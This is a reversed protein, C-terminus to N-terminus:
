PAKCGTISRDQDNIRCLAYFRLCQCIYIQCQVMIQIDHRNDVLDIKWACLRLTHDFLNFIHDSNFRLICWQDRCLCPKIYILDQFLDHCLDRRRCSIRICRKLCQNEIGEIIRIFANDYEATDFFSTDRFSHRNMHHRCTCSSINHLNSIKTGSLKDRTIFKRCSHNSIKRGAQFIYLVGTHTIGYCTRFIWTSLRKRSIFLDIRHHVASHIRCVAGFVRIQSICQFLQLEVIRRKLKFRLGRKRQSKTEATTEKSKQM